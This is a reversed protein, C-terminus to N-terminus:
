SEHSIEITGGEANTQQVSRASDGSVVTIQLNGSRSDQKEVNCTFPRDEFSYSKPPSGSIIEQRDGVMCIGSFRTSEAGEIRLSIEEAGSPAAERNQQLGGTTEAPRTSSSLTGENFDSSEGQPEQESCGSVILVLSFVFLPTVRRLRTNSSLM